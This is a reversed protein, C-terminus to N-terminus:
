VCVCVYVCVTRSSISLCLTRVGQRKAATWEGVVWVCVCVGSGCEMGAAEAVDRVGRSVEILLV